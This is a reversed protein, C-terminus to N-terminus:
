NINIRPYHIAFKNYFNIVSLEKLNSFSLIVKATAVFSENM